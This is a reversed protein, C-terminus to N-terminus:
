RPSPGPPLGCSAPSATCCPTKGSGSAGMVAVSEGPAVDLDVGALAPATGGPYRMELGRAYLLSSTM